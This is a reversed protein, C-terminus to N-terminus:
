VYFSAIYFRSYAVKDPYASKTAKHSCHNDYTDIYLPGKKPPYAPRNDLIKIRDIRMHSRFCAGRGEALCKHFMQFIWGGPLVTPVRHLQWCRQIIAMEFNM